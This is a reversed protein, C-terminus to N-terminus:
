LWLKGKQKRWWWADSWIHCLTTSSSPRKSLLLINCGWSHLHCQRRENNYQDWNIFNTWRGHTSKSFHCARPFINENIFILETECEIHTQYNPFPQINWTSNINIKRKNISILSQQTAMLMHFLHFILFTSHNINRYLNV